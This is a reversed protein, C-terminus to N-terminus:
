SELSQTLVSFIHSISLTFWYLSSKLKLSTWELSLSLPSLSTEVQAFSSSTTKTWTEVHKVNGMEFQEIRSGASKPNMKTSSHPCKINHM